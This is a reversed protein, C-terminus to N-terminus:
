SARRLRCSPASGASDRSCRRGPAPRGGAAPRRFRARACARPAPSRRARRSGRCPAPALRCGPMRASAARRRRCRRAPPPATRKRDGAAAGRSRRLVEDPELSHALLGVAHIRGRIRAHPLEPRALAHVRRRCQHAPRGAVPERPDRRMALQRLARPEPLIARRFDAARDLLAGEIRRAAAEHLTEAALVDLCSEQQHRLDPKRGGSSGRKAPVTSAM